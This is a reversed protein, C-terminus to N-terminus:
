SICRSATRNKIKNCADEQVLPIKKEKKYIYTCKIETSTISCFQTKIEECWFCM